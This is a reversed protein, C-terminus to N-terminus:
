PEGVSHFAREPFRQQTRKTNLFLLFLLVDDRVDHHHPHPASARSNRKAASVRMLTAQSTEKLQKSLGRLVRHSSQYRSLVATDDQDVNDNLFAPGM